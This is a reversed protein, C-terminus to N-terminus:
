AAGTSKSGFSRVVRMCAVAVREGGPLGLQLEAM